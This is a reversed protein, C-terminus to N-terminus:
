ESGRKTSRGDRSDKVVIYDKEGAKVTKTEVHEDWKYHVNTVSITGYTLAGRDGAYKKVAALLEDRYEEKLKKSAAEDRAHERYKEMLWEVRERENKDEISETKVVPAEDTSPRKGAADKDNKPFAAHSVEDHLEYFGCPWMNQDCVEPLGEDLATSVAEMIRRARVKMKGLPVPPGLHPQVTIAGLRVEREGDKVEDSLKEAVCFLGAVQEPHSYGMRVGSLYSSYQWEYRPFAAVGGKTFKRYLDPGLIKVEVVLVKVTPPLITMRAPRETILGISDLSGRIQVGESMPIRVVFQKAGEHWTMCPGSFRYSGMDAPDLMKMKPTGKVRSNWWSFDGQAVRNIVAQELITSEDFRELLREPPPAAPIELASAVLSRTCDNMTSSRIVWLELEEDFYVNPRHDSEDLRAQQEPTLAKLNVVTDTM